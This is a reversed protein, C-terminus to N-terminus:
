NRNETEEGVNRKIYKTEGLHKGNDYSVLRIYTKESFLSKVYWRLCSRVHETLLWEMEELVMKLVDRIKLKLFEQSELKMDNLTEHWIFRQCISGLYGILAKRNRVSLWISWHSMDASTTVIIEWIHLWINVIELRGILFYTSRSTPFYM